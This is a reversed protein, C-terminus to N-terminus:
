RNREIIVFQAVDELKDELSVLSVFAKGHAFFMAPAFYKGACVVVTGAFINKKGNQLLQPIDQPHEILYALYRVDAIHYCSYCSIVIRELAYVLKRSFTARGEGELEVISISEEDISGLSASDVDMTLTYVDDPFAPAPSSAGREKEAEEHALDHYVKPLYDFHPLLNRASIALRAVLANAVVIDKKTVHGVIDNECSLSTLSRPSHGAFHQLGDGRAKAFFKGTITAFM